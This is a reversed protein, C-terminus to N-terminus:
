TQNNMLKSFEPMYDLININRKTDWRQIFDKLLKENPPLECFNKYKEPVSKRLYMPLNNSDLSPWGNVPTPQVLIMKNTKAYEEIEQIRHLNLSSITSAICVDFLDKLYNINKDIQNFDSGWRIYDNTLGVGEISAIIIVKKFRGIIKLFKKPIFTCNSVIYLKIRDSQGRDVIWQFLDLLKNSLFPEGGLTEISEIQGINKMIYEASLEDYTEHGPIKNYREPMENKWLKDFSSSVSPFCMMCALNCDKGTHIKVQTIKSLDTHARDMLVSQRMSKNGSDELDWCHKCVPHRQDNIFYKKVEELESSAYYSEITKHKKFFDKNTFCCPSIKGGINDVAMFPLPCFNRKKDTM